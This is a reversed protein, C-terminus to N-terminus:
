TAIIRPLSPTGTQVSLHKIINLISAAMKSNEHQGMGASLGHHLKPDGLPAEDDNSQSLSIVPM